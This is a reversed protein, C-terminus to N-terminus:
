YWDVTITIDGDGLTGGGDCGVYTTADAIIDAGAALEAKTAQHGLLIALVPVDMALNEVGNAAIGVEIQSVAGTVAATLAVSADVIRGILGVPGIFTGILANANLDAAPFSYTVRLPKDYTYM